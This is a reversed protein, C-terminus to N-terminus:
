LEEEEEEEPCEVEEWYGVDVHVGYFNNASVEISFSQGEATGKWEFQGPAPNGSPAFEYDQIKVNEEVAVGMEYEAFIWDGTLEITITVFDDVVESFEVTGVPINQGAFLTTTKEAYVVYTAWNGRPTYRYVGPENDNAAWATEGMFEYCTPPFDDPGCLETAEFFEFCNTASKILYDVNWVKEDLVIVVTVDDGLDDFNDLKIFPYENVFACGTGPGTFNVVPWIEGNVTASVVNEITLYEGDCDIFQFLMHSVDQADSQNIEFTLTTEENEYDYEFDIVYNGSKLANADDQINNEVTEKQCSWTFALMAVFILLITKRM